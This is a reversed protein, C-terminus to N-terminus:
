RNAQKTWKGGSKSKLQLRQAGAHPITGSEGLSCAFRLPTQITKTQILQVGLLKQKQKNSTHARTLLLLKSRLLCIPIRYNLLLLLLALPLPLPFLSSLTTRVTLRVMISCACCSACLFGEM